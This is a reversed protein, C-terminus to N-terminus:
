FHSHQPRTVLMIFHHCPIAFYLSFHHCSFYRLLHYSSPSFLSTSSPIIVLSFHLLRHFSSSSFLSTSSPIIVLFTFYFISYAYFIHLLFPSMLFTFYLISHHRLSFHHLLHISSLFFLSTSSPIIVFLFTFYIASHQCLSIYLVLTHPCTLHVWIDRSPLGPLCVAVSVTVVVCLLCSYSLLVAVLCVGGFLVSECIIYVIMENVLFMLLINRNPQLCRQGHMILSIIFLHIEFTDEEVRYTRRGPTRWTCSNTSQPKMLWKKWSRCFVLCCQWSLNKVDLFLRWEWNM